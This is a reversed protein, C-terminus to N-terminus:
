AMLSSFIVTISMIIVFYTSSKITKYTIFNFLLGFFRLNSIFTAFLPFNWTKRRCTAFEAAFLSYFCACNCVGFAILMVYSFCVTALRAANKSVAPTDLIVSLMPDDLLGRSPTSTTADSINLFQM